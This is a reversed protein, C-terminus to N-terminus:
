VVGVGRTVHPKIERSGTEGTKVDAFEFWAVPVNSLATARYVFRVGRRPADEEWAPHSSGRALTCREWATLPQRLWNESRSFAKCGPCGGASFHKLSSGDSGRNSPVHGSAFCSNTGSVFLRESSSKNAAADGPSFLRCRWDIRPSQVSRGPRPPNYPVSTGM